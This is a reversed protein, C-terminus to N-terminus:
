SRLQKKGTVVDTILASRRELLLSKLEATKALMQDIKGTVEDLHDAIRAQEHPSSLPIRFNRVQDESIHPVSIGTFKPTAYEKFSQARLAYYVYRANGMGERVRIRLVRQVLLSHPADAPVQVVRTGGSVFPRDMGLVIDTPGVYYESLDPVNRSRWYVTESWDLGFPKVNVGRLLPIDSDDNSFQGSPFAYGPLCDIIHGLAGRRGDAFIAVEIAVARRAELTESLENMKALMADIEGTERDLYDAIRRQMERPADLLKHEQVFRATIRRLNGVGQLSHAGEDLFPASQLSYTVFRPDVGPQARVIHVETSAVGLDTPIQAIISRGAEFTPTIKPVLVDGRRFTTYSLKKSWSISRSYDARGGPWITELPMFGVSEGEDLDQFEPTAPNVEALKWLPAYNTM